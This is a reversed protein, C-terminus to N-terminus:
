RLVALDTVQYAAPVIAGHVRLPVVLRELGAGEIVISCHFCPEATVYITSGLCRDRGARIIANVEAHVARCGTQEYGKFEAQETYSLQGRPCAGASACGPKGAALGNYGTAVITGNADVIVAGVQRRSCDARSATAEALKLGYEDRTLRTM